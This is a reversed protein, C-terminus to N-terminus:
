PYNSSSKIRKGVKFIIIQKLGFFFLYIFILTFIILVFIFYFLMLCSLYNGNNDHTEVENRRKKLSSSFKQIKSSLNQSLCFFFYYTWYNILQTMQFM